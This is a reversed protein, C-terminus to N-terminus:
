TATDSTVLNKEPSFFEEAQLSFAAREAPTKLLPDTGGELLLYLAARRADRRANEVGKRRIEKRAKRLSKYPSQYVGTAEVFVEASSVTELVVAEHSVPAVSNETAALCGTWLWWGLIIFIKRM